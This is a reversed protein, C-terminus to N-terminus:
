RHRPAKITLSQTTTTTKGSQKVKLKATVRLRKRHKVMGRGKGTMSVNVKRKKGQAISLKQRGLINPAGRRSAGVESKAAKKPLELVLTGECPSAATESCSLTLPVNGKRTMTTVPQGISLPPAIAAPPDPPTTAPPTPPPANVLECNSVKATTNPTSLVDTGAGCDVSASTMSQLSLVDDGDETKIYLWRVYRSPCSAHHTDTVTCGLKATMTAGPDVVQYTSTDSSVTLNNAEGPAAVYYLAGSWYDFGVTAARAPAAVFLMAATLVLLALARAGNSVCPNTSTTV